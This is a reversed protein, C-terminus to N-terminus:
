ASANYMDSRSEMLGEAWAIAEIDAELAMDERYLSALEEAM